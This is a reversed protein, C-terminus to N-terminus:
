GRSCGTPHRRDPRLVAAAGDRVVPFQRAPHDAGRLGAPAELRHLHGALGPRGPVAGARRRGEEDAHAPRSDRGGGPRERHHVAPGRHLGFAAELFHKRGYRREAQPGIFLMGSDSDVHGTALMWDTVRSAEGVTGLELGGLGETWTQRGVRGHQLCLALLQQALLHLPRSPAVVPEVYGEADLQELGAARLLEDDDTALVLMSPTTGASAPGTRRRRVGPSCSTPWRVWPSSMSGCGTRAATGSGRRRRSRRRRPETSM